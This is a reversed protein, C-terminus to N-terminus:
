ADRGEGPTHGAPAVDAADDRWWAALREEADPARPDLTTVREGALQHRIWTRQRKAYQRTAIVIAERAARETLEGRVLRRVVDYGTANWAPADAPVSRLLARVEDVWGAAFMEAVREAIRARLADRGPDVVLYRAAIPAAGPPGAHADSLRRGALLVTEVARLLQARGLAARPPDLRAAWRRLEPTDLAALAQALAARRHPDLPPAAAFPQVLARVYFGTGGVVLPTHGGGRAAAIWGRADDAWRAASWREAPDAVDIGHHPVSAREASTPKATGVDFGRYLQRSDASVIAGGFRRALRLAVASKGAATPGVVVRLREPTAGSGDGSDASSSM